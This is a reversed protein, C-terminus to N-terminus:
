RLPRPHPLARCAEACHAERGDARPDTGAREQARGEQLRTNHLIM